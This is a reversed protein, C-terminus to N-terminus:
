SLYRRALTIAIGTAVAPILVGAWGDATKPNEIAEKISERYEKTREIMPEPKFRNYLDGTGVRNPTPGAM